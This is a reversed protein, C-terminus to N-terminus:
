NMVARTFLLRSRSWTWRGLGSTDFMPPVKFSVLTLRLRPFKRGTPSLQATICASTHGKLAFEVKSDTKAYSEYLVPNFDPYGLIRVRGEITPAFIRSGSWCFAVHNTALPQQSSFLPTSQSPSLM